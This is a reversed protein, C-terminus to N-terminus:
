KPGGFAAIDERLNALARETPRRLEKEVEDVNRREKPLAMWCAQVAMRVSQDVHGPGFMEAMREMPNQCTDDGDDDDERTVTTVVNMAM